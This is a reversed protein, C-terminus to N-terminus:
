DSLTTISISELLIMLFIVAQQQIAATISAADPQLSLL